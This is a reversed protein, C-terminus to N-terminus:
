RKSFYVQQKDKSRNRKESGAVAIMKRKKQHNRITRDLKKIRNEPSNKRQMAHELLRELLRLFEEQRTDEQKLDQTGLMKRIDKLAYTKKWEKVKQLMRIDDNTYYRYGKESRKIELMLEEEWFRLVYAEVGLLRSAQSITYTTEVM